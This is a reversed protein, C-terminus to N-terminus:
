LYGRSATPRRIHVLRVNGFLEPTQYHNNAYTDFVRLKGIRIVQEREAHPSSLSVSKVGMRRLEGKPRRPLGTGGPAEM